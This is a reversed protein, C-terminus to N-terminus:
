VFAIAQEGIPQQRGQDGPWHNPQGQDTMSQLVFDRLSGQDDGSNREMQALPRTVEKISSQEDGNTGVHRESIACKKLVAFSPHAVADQDTVEVCNPFHINAVV